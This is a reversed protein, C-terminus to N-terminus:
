LNMKFRELSTKQLITISGRALSIFGRYEFEKLLRSIVERLTGLEAALEEHTIKLVPEPCNQCSSYSTNILRLLTEALREDMRRFVVEEILVMIDAFRQAFQGFIFSRVAHSTDILEKFVSAPLTLISVDQEAVASAQHIPRSLICALSLICTEGAGMRYLTIERGTPSAKYVRIIGSEVFGIKGCGTGETFVVDGASIRTRTLELNQLFPLQRLIESDNISVSGPAVTNIHSSPIVM